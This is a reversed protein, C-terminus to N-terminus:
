ANQLLASIIEHPLYTTLEENLEISKLIRYRDFLIARKIKDQRQWGSPNRFLRPIFLSNVISPLVSCNLITEWNLESSEFAKDEWEEGCACQGFVILKGPNNDHFNIWGVLDLGGEGTDYQSFTEETIYFQLETNLLTALKKFLNFKNLEKFDAHRHKGKGFIYKKVKDGNPFLYSFASFAFLEFNAALATAKAKDILRLNSSLLLYLYFKQSNTLDRSKIEISAYDESIKFPYFDGLISERYKLLEFWSNIFQSINDQIVAEESGFDQETQLIENEHYTDEEEEYVEDALEDIDSGANDQVIDNRIDGKSIEKDKNTLCLLEIIDCWKNLDKDEPSPLNYLKEIFSTVQQGTM